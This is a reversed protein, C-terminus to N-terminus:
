QGARDYAYKHFKLQRKRFWTQNTWEHFLITYSAVYKKLVRQAGVVDVIDEREAWCHFYSNVNTM